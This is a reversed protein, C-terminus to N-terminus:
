INAYDFWENVPPLPPITVTSPRPSGNQSQKRTSKLERMKAYYGERVDLVGQSLKNRGKGGQGVYRKHEFFELALEVEDRKVRVWPYILRLFEEVMPGQMNWTWIRSARNNETPQKKSEHLRGLGGTLNRMEELISLDCQPMIVQCQYYRMKQRRINVCGEGDFFGAIYQPTMNGAM